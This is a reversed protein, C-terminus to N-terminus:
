LAALKAERDSAQLADFIPDLQGELIKELSFSAGIRHDTVRNQPWNYTRVRQSRDGTGVQTRRLESRAAERKMREIEYLKARLLDLAKAKNRLQSKDEQCKVQMGTPLHIVRIASSTKNVHQGGPGSSRMATIELEEPDLEFDLAEVEPMVAVTAASTHIRGQTETAPVRQVRHGGSEYRMTRFADDGTFKLVIEKFGGMESESVDMIENQWGRETAYRSYINVLDRAFLSAEDGGAGARIEILAPKDADPDDELVRDLIDQEVVAFRAELDPLEGEALEKMDPDGGDLFEKAEDIEDALSTYEQWPGLVKQLSGLERLMGPYGPKGVENPDSVAAELEKQRAEFEEVRGRLVEVLSM